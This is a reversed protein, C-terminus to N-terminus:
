GWSFHPGAHPNAAISVAHERLVHAAGAPIRVQMHIPFLLSMITQPCSSGWSSHPGAHPEPAPLMRSTDALAAEAGQLRAALEAVQVQAEKVERDKMLLRKEYEQAM